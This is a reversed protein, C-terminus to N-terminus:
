PKDKPAYSEMREQVEPSEHALAAFFREDGLAGRIAMIEYLFSESAGADLQPELVRQFTMRLGGADGRYARSFPSNPHQRLETSNASRHPEPFGSLRPRSSSACGSLLTAALIVAAFRTMAFHV